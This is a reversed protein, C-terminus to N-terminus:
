ASAKIWDSVAVLYDEWLEPFCTVSPIHNVELLFKGEPGVIYDNAILDLGLGKQIALTDEVLEPDTPVLEAGQGHVSKLWDSGAMRVQRISQGIVVIRVAEGAFFPEILCAEAHKWSESFRAKNEGCHWNGWKAVSEGTASYEAKASAFGRRPSGFRSYRLARVLGPLRLRCDMMGSANPFCPGGWLALGALFDLDNEFIGHFVVHSIPVYNSSEDEIHLISERVCIRPLLDRALVPLNLRKELLTSEDPDFGIVALRTRPVDLHPM